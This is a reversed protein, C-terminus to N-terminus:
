HYSEKPGKYEQITNGSKVTIAQRTIYSARKSALFVNLSVVEEADGGRGAPTNEGGVEESETQSATAIWSTFVCNVM